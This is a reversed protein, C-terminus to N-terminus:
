LYHLEYATPLQYWPISCNKRPTRRWSQKQFSEQKTTRQCSTTSIQKGDAGTVAGTTLKISVCVGENIYEMFLLPSNEYPLKMGM